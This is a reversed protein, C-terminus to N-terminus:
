LVQELNGKKKYQFICFNRSIKNNNDLSVPNEMRSSYWSFYGFHLSTSNEQEVKSDDTNRFLGTKIL